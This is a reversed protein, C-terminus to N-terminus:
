LHHSALPFFDGATTQEAQNFCEKVGMQRHAAQGAYIVSIPKQPLSQVSFVACLNSKAPLRTLDGFRCVQLTGEDCEKVGIEVGTPKCFGKNVLYVPYILLWTVSTNHYKHLLHNDIFSPELNTSGFYLWDWESTLILVFKPHIKFPGM